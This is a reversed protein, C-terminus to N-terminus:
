FMRVKALQLILNEAEKEMALDQSDMPILEPFSDMTICETPMKSSTPTAAMIKDMATRLEETGPRLASMRRLVLVRKLMETMDETQLSDLLFTISITVTAGIVFRLIRRIRTLTTLMKLISNADEPTM